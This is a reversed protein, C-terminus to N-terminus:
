TKNDEDEWIKYYYPQIDNLIQSFYIVEGQSNEIKLRPFTRLMKEDGFHKYIFDARDEDSYLYEYVQNMQQKNAVDIDYEKVIRTMFCMLAYATIIYDILMGILIIIVASKCAKINIKKKFWNILKDVKPNLSVMLYLSLGGWFIAYLVCIRGNLNLSMNSYDWWKVNFIVEGIWSVVYELISGVLCGGLFITNYSKKFYQLAVIIVFHNYKWKEKKM